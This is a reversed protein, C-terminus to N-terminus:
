HATLQAGESDGSSRQFYTAMDLRLSVLSNRQSGGEGEAPAPSNTDTARELEVANIIVFLKSAEIDHVFRRLNGYQGEVTVTIAIGPYISQWKNNASKSTVATNKAGAPDLATYSPGSTNRLANKRILLNLEGYLDMRGQTRSFLQGTEFRDLSETINRVASETTQEDRVETRYNGLFSQLRTRETEAAQLRARAPVLFYLYSIIVLLAVLASGGLAILEATGVVGSSGTIRLKRVRMM